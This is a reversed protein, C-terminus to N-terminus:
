EECIDQLALWEADRLLPEYSGRFRDSESLAKYRPEEQAFVASSLEAVEFLAALNEISPASVPGTIRAESFRDLTTDGIEGTALFNLTERTGATQFLQYLPPEEDETARELLVYGALLEPGRDDRLLSKNLLINGGPLLASKRSGMEVVSLHNVSTRLLRKELIRLARDGLPSSCRTGTLNAVHEMAHKGIEESTADPVISTAYRAATEPLWIFLATAFWLIVLAAIWTRLRGPRPRTKAIAALTKDLAEIMAPDEIELIEQAEDDASFVVVGQEDNVREVAALSWHTLPDGQGNSLVLTAEGFSVIVEVRQADPGAKWLGLSELREYEKLATM